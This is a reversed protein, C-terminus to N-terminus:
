DAMVIMEVNKLFDTDQVSMQFHCAPCSFPTEDKREKPIKKNGCESMLIGKM